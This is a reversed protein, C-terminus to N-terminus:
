IPWAQLEAAARFHALLITSELWPEKGTASVVEAGKETPEAQLTMPLDWGVECWLQLRGKADLEAVRGVVAMLLAQPEPVEAEVLIM